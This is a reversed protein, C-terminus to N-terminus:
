PNETDHELREVVKNAAKAAALHQKLEPITERAFARIGASRGKREEAKFAATDHRHDKIALETFEDDFELGPEAAVKALMGHQEDTMDGPVTVGYAAAVVFLTALEATHDSALKAGLARVEPTEASAAALLGGTIEFYAGEAAHELFARDRSSVRTDPQGDSRGESHGNHAMATGSTAALTGLALAGAAVTTLLGSRM